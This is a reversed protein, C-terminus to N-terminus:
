VAKLQIKSMEGPANSHGNRPPEGGVAAAPWDGEVREGTKEKRKKFDNVGNEKLYNWFIAREQGKILQIPKKLIDPCNRQSCNDGRRGIAEFNGQGRHRGFGNWYVLGLGISGNKM